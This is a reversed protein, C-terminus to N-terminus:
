MSPKMQKRIASLSIDAGEVLYLYKRLGLDNMAGRWKQADNGRVSSCTQRVAHRFASYPGSQSSGFRLEGVRVIAAEIVDSQVM